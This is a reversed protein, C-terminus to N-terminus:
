KADKVKAVIWPTKMRYLVEDGVKFEYESDLNFIVADGDDVGSERLEDNSHVMIGHQPEHLSSKIVEVSGHFEREKEVPRVYCWPSVSSFTGNRRILYIMNVPIRYVNEEIENESPVKHDHEAQSSRRVCNHHFYVEDGEKFRPDGSTIVSGHRAVYTVDDVGNNVLFRTGGPATVTSEYVEEMKVIVNDNM